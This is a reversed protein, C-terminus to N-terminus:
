ACSCCCDRSRTGRAGIGARGATGPWGPHCCGLIQQVRGGVSAGRGGERGRPTQEDFPGGADHESLNSRVSGRARRRHRKSWGSGRDSVPSRPRCHTTVRDDPGSSRCPVGDAVRRTAAGALPSQWRPANPRGSDTLANGVLIPLGADVFARRRSGLVVYRGSTSDEHQRAADKGGVVRDRSRRARGPRVTASRADLIQHPRGTASGSRTSGRRDIM